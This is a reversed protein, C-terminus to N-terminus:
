RIYPILALFRAVKVAKGILKQRKAKSLTHTATQKVTDGESRRDISRRDTRMLRGPSIRGADTVCRNLLKLNKFNIETEKLSYIYKNRMYNM